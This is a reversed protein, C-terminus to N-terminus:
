KDFQPEERHLDRVAVATEHAKSLTWRVRTAYDM